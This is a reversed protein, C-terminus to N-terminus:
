PKLLKKALGPPMPKTCKARADANEGAAKVCAAWKKMGDAHQQALEAMKAARQAPTLKQWADKWAQDPRGGHGHHAWSPAGHGTRPGESPDDKDAKTKGHAPHTTEDDTSLAVAATSMSGVFLIAFVAVVIKRKM